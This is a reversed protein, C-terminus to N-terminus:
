VRANCARALFILIGHGCKRGAVQRSPMLWTVPGVSITVVTASKTEKQGGCDTCLIDIYVM